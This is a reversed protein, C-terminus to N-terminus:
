HIKRDLLDQYFEIASTYSTLGLSRALPHSSSTSITQNLNDKFFKYFPWKSIVCLAKMAWLKERVSLKSKLERWLENAGLAGNFRNSLASFIQLKRYKEIDVRTTIQKTVERSVYVMSVMLNTNYKPGPLLSLKLEQYIEDLHSKTNLLKEGIEDLNNYMSYGFSSTSVGSIAIPEPVVVISEAQILAINAIYYDPFPSKYIRRKADIKELLERSFICAQSNYSFNINLKLSQRVAEIADVRSLLFPQSEERFFFGHKIEIIYGSPEWPAVKRHWFQYFNNYIYQPKHFRTIIDRLKSFYNPALGDDDGLLTVYDGSSLSMAENWSETVSLFSDSRSFKIRSDSLSKSYNEISLTSANDFIILEWNSYNQALVTKVAEKLLHLRNHCPIVISFLISENEGNNSKILIERKEIEKFYSLAM